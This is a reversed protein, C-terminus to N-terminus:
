QGKHPGHPVTLKTATQMFARSGLTDPLMPMLPKRAADVVDGLPRSKYFYLMHGIIQSIPMGAKDDVDGLIAGIVMSLEHAHTGSAKPVLESPVDADLTMYCGTVSSSGLMMSKGDASKFAHQAYVGQIMM